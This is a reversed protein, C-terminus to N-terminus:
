GCCAAIFPSSPLTVTCTTASGFPRTDDTSIFDLEPECHSSMASIPRNRSALSGGSCSSVSGIVKLKVM